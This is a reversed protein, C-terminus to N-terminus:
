HGRMRGVLAAMAGSMADAAMRGPHGHGPLIWEFRREALRAMSQTQAHWDFWCVEQRAHPRREGPDWELHDGTFLHTDDHLLCMSGRTHGPVVIATLGPAIEADDTGSVIWEVDRTRPGREAEHLIRTCGFHAAFRAHDAVDDRHTLFMLDIGGLEEIRRVLPGSFRPSDVLVNGEPRVLLYSAAGFSARAHYGCHHVPGELPDPFAVRADALDHAERTGIAGVPCAVLAMRARHEAPRGMPQKRVRSHGQAPGFVSPAVWNCTACDICTTDIFFDGPANDPM